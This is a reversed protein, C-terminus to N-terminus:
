WSAGRCKVQKYPIAMATTWYHKSNVNPKGIPNLMNRLNWRYGEIKELQELYISKVEIVIIGLEKDLVLIDPERRAAGPSFIPYRWYALCDRGSFARKVADWVELEDAEGASGSRETEIFAPLDNLTDTQKLNPLTPPM